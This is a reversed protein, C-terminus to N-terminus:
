APDKEPPSAPKVDNPFEFTLSQTVEQRRMRGTEAALAIRYCASVVQRVVAHGVSSVGHAVPLSCQSLVSKFGATAACEHISRATFPRQHPFAGYRFHRGIPRVANPDRDMFVSGPALAEAEDDFIQLAEPKTPHELLDTTMVAPYHDPHTSLIVRFDGHCVRTVSATRALASREGSIGIGETHFGDVVPGAV